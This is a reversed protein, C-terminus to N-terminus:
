VRVPRVHKDRFGGLDSHEEFLLQHSWNNDIGSRM